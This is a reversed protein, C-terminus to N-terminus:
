EEDSIKEPSKQYHKTLQRVARTYMKITKQSLGKLQLDEAFRKFLDTM